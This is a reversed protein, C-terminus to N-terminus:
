RAEAPLYAAMKEIQVAIAERVEHLLKPDPNFSLFRGKRIVLEKVRALAREGDAAAASGAHGAAKANKIANGLVWLYEHDELGERLLEWRITNIPGDEALLLWTATRNRGWRPRRQWDSCESVHWHLCGSIDDLWYRWWVLRFDAALNDVSANASNGFWITDGAAKRRQAALHAYGGGTLWVNVRGYLRPDYWMASYTVRIEPFEEKLMDICQGIVPIDKNNPEDYLDFILRDQWGRERLFDGMVRAMKRFRACWLPKLTDEAEGYPTWMLRHGAGISFARCTLHPVKAVEFRYKLEKEFLDLHLARFETSGDKFRWSLPAYRLCARHDVSNRVCRDWIAQTDKGKYLLDIGRRSAFYLWPTFHREDPITFAHVRVRLPVTAVCTRKRGMGHYLMVSGDYLGPPTGRAVKVTIWLVTNKGPDVPFTRTDRLADPTPGSWNPYPYRLDVLETVASAISENPIKEGASNELDTFIVEMKELRTYKMEEKGRVVLQFPEYEGRAASVLVRPAKRPPAAEERLVKRTPLEGWVLIEDTEALRAGTPSIAPRLAPFPDLKLEAAWRELAEKYDGRFPALWVTFEYVEGKPSCKDFTYPSLLFLYSAGGQLFARGTLKPFLVLLGEGSKVDRVAFWNKMMAIQWFPKDGVKLVDPRIEGKEARHTPILREYEDSSFRLSALASWSSMQMDRLTEFRWKMEMVPTGPLFRCRKEVRVYHDRAVTHWVGRRLEATEAEFCREPLIQGFEKEPGSVHAWYVGLDPDAYHFVPQMSHLLSRARSATSAHGLGTLVGNNGKDFTARAGASELVVSDGVATEPLLCACAVALAVTERRHSKM